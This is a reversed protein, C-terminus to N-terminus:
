KSRFANCNKCPFWCATSQGVNDDMTGSFKSGVFLVKSGALDRQLPLRYGNNDSSLYGNTISDGLPLIRLEIGDGVNSRQELSSIELKNVAAM